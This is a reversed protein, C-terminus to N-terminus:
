LGISEPYNQCIFQNFRDLRVRNTYKSSNINFLTKYFKHKNNVIQISKTGGRYSFYNIYTDCDSMYRTYRKMWSDIYDPKDGDYIGFLDLLEYLQGESTQQNRM